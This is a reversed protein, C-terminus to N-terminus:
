HLELTKFDTDTEDYENYFLYKYKVGSEKSEENDDTNPIKGICYETWKLLMELRKQMNVKQLKGAVRFNNPNFRLFIVDMYGLAEYIQHMRVMESKCGIEDKMDYSKHQNEDVEVIVFHTGCDYVRDPRKKNCMSDTISDDVPLIETQLYKDLYSLTLKEFKKERKIQQYIADPECFNL